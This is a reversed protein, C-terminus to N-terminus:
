NEKTLLTYGMAAAPGFDKLVSDFIGELNGWPDEDTYFRYLFLTDVLLSAMWDVDTTYGIVANSGSTNLLNRGFAEGTDGALVSCSGLYILNPYVGYDRFSDCIAQSGIAELTTQISGPSGHFALYFVPCDWSQPDTWLLGDPKQTYHALHSLSEVYRHAVQLPPSTLPRLADFFGKVSLNRFVREDWSSELCVLKRPVAHAMAPWTPHGSESCEAFWDPTEVPCREVCCRPCVESEGDLCSYRSGEASGHKWYCDTAMGEEKEDIEELFVADRPKAKRGRDELRDKELDGTLFGEEARGPGRGGQAGGTKGERHDTVM